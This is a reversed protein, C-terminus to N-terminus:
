WKQKIKQQYDKCQCSSVSLSDSNLTGVRGQFSPIKDNEKGSRSFVQFKSLFKYFGPIKVWFRSFVQFQSNKHKLSWKELHWKCFYNQNVEKDYRCKWCLCQNSAFNVKSKMAKVQFYCPIKHWLFLWFGVDTKVCKLIKIVLIQIFTDLMQCLFCQFFRSHLVLFM